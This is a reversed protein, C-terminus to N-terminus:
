YDVGTNEDIFHIWTQGANLIVEEKSDYFYRTRNDDENKEWYSEKCIGDLCVVAMGGSSLDIKLRLASDLIETEVFQFILNDAKIQEGSSDTQKKGALSRLYINQNIDYSWDVEYQKQGNSINIDLSALFLDLDSIVEKDKFTWSSFDSKTYNREKLYEKIDDLNAVVNHPALYNNDREFYSGNYFENLAIIKEKSIRALAEPSGGCHILMAEYEQTIDLFYPRASRIPGVQLSNKNEINFFALYRNIGGEAPIDYVVEAQSLGIAPRADPHNDIVTALVFSNVSDENILEGDLLRRQCNECIVNEQSEINEEGLSANNIIQKEKLIFVFFLTLAVIFLFGSLIYFLRSSKQKEKKNIESKKETIKRKIFKIM